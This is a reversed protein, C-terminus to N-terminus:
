QSVPVGDPLYGGLTPLVGDYAFQITLHDTRHGAGVIPSLNWDSGNFSPSTYTYVTAGAPMPSAVFLLLLILLAVPKTSPYRQDKPKSM